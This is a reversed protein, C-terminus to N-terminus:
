NLLELKQLIINLNSNTKLEKLIIIIFVCSIIGLERMLKM